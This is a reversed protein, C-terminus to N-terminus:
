LIIAHSDGAEKSFLGSFLDDLRMDVFGGGFMEPGEGLSLSERGDFSLAGDGEIM